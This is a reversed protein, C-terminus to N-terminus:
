LEIRQITSQLSMMTARIRTNISDLDRGLITAPCVVIAGEVAKAGGKPEPRTIREIRAVLKAAVADLMEATELLKQLQRAIEPQQIAQDVTGCGKIMKADRGDANGLFAGGIRNIQNESYEM